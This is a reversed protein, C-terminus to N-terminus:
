EHFSLTTLYETAQEDSGMVVHDAAYYEDANFEYDDTGGLWVPINEKGLITELIPMRKDHDHPVVIIKNRVEEAILPLFCKLLLECTRGMDTLVVVGLRDVYHDQLMTVFSKIGNLSPMVGLSFGEGSIIVNFKGVRGHSNKMSAAVANELERILTRAYFVEDVHVRLAPRLWVIAHPAHEDDTLSPSFGHHYVLGNTNVKQVSRTVLWPKYHERYILTHNLAFEGPCGHKKCPKFPFMVSKLDSPWKMIRLYSYLLNGAELKELPTSKKTPHAKPPAWWSTSHPHEILHAHRQDHLPGGWPVEKVRKQLSEINDNSQQALQQIISQQNANLPLAEATFATPFDEKPRAPISAPASSRKSKSSEIVVTSALNVGSVGQISDWMWQCACARPTSPSFTSALCEDGDKRRQFLRLIGRRKRQSNSNADCTERSDGRTTIVHDKCLIYASSGATITTLFLAASFGMLFWKMVISNKSVSNVSDDMSAEDGSVGAISPM